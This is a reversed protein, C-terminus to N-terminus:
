ELSRSARGSVLLLVYPALVLVFCAGFAAGYGAV